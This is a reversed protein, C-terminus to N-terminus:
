EADFQAKLDDKYPRVAEKDANSVGKVAKMMMLSASMMQTMMAKQEQPLDSDKVQQLQAELQSVSVPENEIELALYALSIQRTMGAWEEVNDYGAAQVKQNFDDYLGASKLDKVGQNLMEDIGQSGDPMEDPMQDEHESLWQELAPMNKMWTEIDAGTLDAAFALQSFMVIIAATILRM